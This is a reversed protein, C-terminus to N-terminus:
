RWGQVDLAIATQNAWNAFRQAHVSVEVATKETLLDPSYAIRTKNGILSDLHKLGRIQKYGLQKLLKELESKRSSHSTAAKNENGLAIWLADGYSIASHVALLAMSVRHEASDAFFKMGDLFDDAKALYNRVEIASMAALEGMGGM